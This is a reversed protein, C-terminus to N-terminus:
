SQKDKVPHKPSNVMKQLEKYNNIFFFGVSM